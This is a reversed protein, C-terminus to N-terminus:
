LGAAIVTTQSAASCTLMHWLMCNALYADLTVCAATNSGTFQSAQKLLDL